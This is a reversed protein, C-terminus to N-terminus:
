KRGINGVLAQGLEEWAAILQDDFPDNDSNEIKSNEDLWKVTRRAGEVWHITYHFDLDRKAATNDFINSYQFNFGVWAAREPVAQVLLDTPIHVLKPAPAGMAEAVGQHYRDWTLWEEGTVHYGKGFTVPNGIAAVFAHGCDDIHCTVWLSQGDGHVVIPKGKRLRDLYGTGWGFSHILTGGEGYTHAPRISTVPFHGAEGAAFFIDECVVKNQGYDGLAFRGETELVPYRLPPKTYVDVTSCFIFHGCRGKFARVDSEAEDPRYCVMDIVCDFLGAEAIQREFTAFDRRDGYITNVPQDLLSLHQGRNYHMLDIGQALLERSIATSILGTGGIILVKM